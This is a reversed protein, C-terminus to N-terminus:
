DQKEAERVAKYIIKYAEAIKASVASPDNTSSVLSNENSVLKHVVPLTLEKAVEHYISM